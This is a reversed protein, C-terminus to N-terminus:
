ATANFDREFQGVVRLIEDFAPPETFFMDQRMARYDSAWAARQAEDPLIRLAGPRLTAYDVWSWRFFVERHRAVRSFLGADALAQQAVGKTILCWLDYYHRALRSKRPKDSPRFNEEHLLMAKEWFTRRAAVTRVAFPASPDLQPFAGSVYPRIAPTEHPETDSRAGLEIKISPRLYDDLPFASPFQLLL